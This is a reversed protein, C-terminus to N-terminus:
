AINTLVAFTVSRSPAIDIIPYAPGQKDIHWFTNTSPPYVPSFKALTNLGSSGPRQRSPLITRIFYLILLFSLGGFVKEQELFDLDRPVGFFMGM